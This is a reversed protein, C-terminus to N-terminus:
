QATKKVSLCKLLMGVDLNPEADVGPLRIKTLTEQYKHKLSPNRPVPNPYTEVLNGHGTERLWDALRFMLAVRANVVM